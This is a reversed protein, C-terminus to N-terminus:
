AAEEETFALGSLQQLFAAHTAPVVERMALRKDFKYDELSDAMVQCLSQVAGRHITKFDANGDKHHRVLIHAEDVDSPTKWKRSGDMVANARMAYDLFLNSVVNGRDHAIALLIRKLTAVPDRGRQQALAYQTTLTTLMDKGCDTHLVHEPFGKMIRHNSSLTHAIFEEIEAKVHRMHGEFTRGNPANTNDLEEHEVPEVFREVISPLQHEPPM